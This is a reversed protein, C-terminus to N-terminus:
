EDKDGVLKIIGKTIYWLVTIAIVLPVFLVWVASILFNVIIVAAITSDDKM